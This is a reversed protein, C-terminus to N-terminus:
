FYCFGVLPVALVVLGKGNEPTSAGMKFEPLAMRERCGLHLRPLWLGPSSTSSAPHPHPDKEGPSFGKGARQSPGSSTPAAWADGGRLPELGHTEWSGLPMVEGGRRCRGESPRDWQQIWGPRLVGQSCSTLAPRPPLLPSVTQRWQQGKRIRRASAPHTLCCGVEQDTCVPPWLAPM